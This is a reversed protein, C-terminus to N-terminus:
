FRKAINEITEIEEITMGLRNNEIKSITELWLIENISLKQVNNFKTKTNPLKGEEVLIEILKEIERDSCEDIFDEIDIDVEKYFIPM